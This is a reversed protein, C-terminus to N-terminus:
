ETPLGTLTANRPASVTFEFRVKRKEQPALELKWAMEGQESEETPAPQIEEARIKIDEHRAVPLQDGVFVTAPNRLLNQVDIEYAYRLVRQNGILQKGVERLALERQVKIRDEIGMTTEFTEQPAVKQLRASGVFEGGRFLAVPGPLLTVESDNLVKARRYVEDTMKPVTLFDLEPMFRLSLIATKHPTNDAPIDVRRPIHFTVAAGSADIEAQIVEAAVTPLPAASEKEEFAEEPAEAGTTFDAMQMPAPAAMKRSLGRASTPPRYLNVYWPSLEPLQASVAPRATSLALDVDLWDEGTSQQVQGLYTLEVPPTEEGTLLRLDYLPQWRAGGRTTYEVELKFEGETLAEVGVTVTYRERPQAGQIRALEKELVEKEAALERRRVAIERKRANIQGHHTGVFALLANGDTVKARGRGIGRALSEGAHESVGDLVRLQGDLLEIEDQLAQDADGKEQLQRGLEAAPVSPTEKFHERRVDLGLVRVRATGEGAARVADPDLSLTLDPVQLEHTGVELDVTGRRTVRARDPYVTVAVIPAEIEM